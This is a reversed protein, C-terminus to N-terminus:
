SKLKLHPSEASKKYGGTRPYCIVFLDPGENKGIGISFKV